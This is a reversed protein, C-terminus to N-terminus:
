EDSQGADKEVQSPVVRQNARDRRQQREYTSCGRSTIKLILFLVVLLGGGGAFIGGSSFGGKYSSKDKPAQPVFAPAPPAYTPRAAPNNAEATCDKCLVAGDPTTTLHNITFSGGCGECFLLESPVPPPASAVPAAAGPVPPLPPLPPHAASQDPAWVPDPKAYPAAGADQADWCAKCVYRGNDDYVDDPGGLVGCEACPFDVPDEGGGGAVGSGAGAGVGAQVPVAKGERVKVDWCPQCYYNGRPDKTRKKGAVDVGCAVCMKPSAAARPAVSGAGAPAAGAAAAGLKPIEVVAGCARCKGKAGAATDPAQAISGCAGCKVTIAM